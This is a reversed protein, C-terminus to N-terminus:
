LSELKNKLEKRKDHLRKSILDSVESFLDHPLEVTKTMSGGDWVKFYCQLGGSSGLTGGSLGHFLEYMSDIENQISNAEILRDSDM